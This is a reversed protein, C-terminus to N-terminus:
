ILFLSLRWVWIPMMADLLAKYANLAGASGGIGVILKPQVIKM